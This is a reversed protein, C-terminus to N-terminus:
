FYINLASSDISRLGLGLGLVKKASYVDKVLQAGAKVLNSKPLVLDSVRKWKIKTIDYGLLTFQVLWENGLYM